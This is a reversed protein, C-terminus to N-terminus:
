NYWIKVVFYDDSKLFNLWDNNTNNLCSNFEDEHLRITRYKAGLKENYYKRLTFTKKSYNVISEIKIKTKM